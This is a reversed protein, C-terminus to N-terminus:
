VVKEFDLASESFHFFARFLLLLLTTLEDVMYIVSYM